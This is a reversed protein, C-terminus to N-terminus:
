RVITLEYEVSTSFSSDDVCECSGGFSITHTGPRLPPLMVWFGDAVSDTTGEPIGFPNDEVATFQFLPSEARFMKLNNLPVGDISAELQTVGDMQSNACARLDTPPLVPNPCNGEATSWEANIMPFLIATGVPITCTRMVPQDIPNGATGALFWVHGQQNVDCNEGTTDTIPSNSIPISVAWQWWKASWQGYSLGYPHSNPPFVAPDRSPSTMIDSSPGAITNTHKYAFAALPTTAAGLTGGGVLTAATLIVVIAALSTTKTNNM